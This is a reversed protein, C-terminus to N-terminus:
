LNEELYITFEDKEPNIQVEGGRLMEFFVFEGMIHHDNGSKYIIGKLKVPDNKSNVTKFNEIYLHAPQSLYNNDDLSTVTGTVKQGKKLCLSSGSFVDEAVVFELLDGEQLTTNSTTIKSSPKIKVPTEAAMATGLTILSLCVATIFLVILKKM